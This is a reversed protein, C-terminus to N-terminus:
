CTGAIPICLYAGVKGSCNASIGAIIYLVHTIYIYIYVHSQLQYWYRDLIYIYINACSM